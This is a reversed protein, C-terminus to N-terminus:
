LEEGVQYRIFTKVKIDPSIDSLFKSVTRKNELDKVFIQDDLCMEGLHKGIKGQVIKELIEPPKKTDGIQALIIEKEKSVIEQPIDSIRVYRPSMAAVHMAIERILSDEIKNNPDSVVVVTGIKNGSHIYQAVKEGNGATHVLFRRAGLKEGVKAILEDQLHSVPKGDISLSLLENLDKPSKENVLKTLKTVYNKFDDTKAVFDTESNVEVMVAKKGDCFFGLLGDSATKGARKEATAMGKKRLAETAKEMDGNSEELAKKCDMMGVGTKERLTRVQESTIAM